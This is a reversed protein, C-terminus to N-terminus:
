KAEAQTGWIENFKNLKGPLAMANNLLKTRPIFVVLDSCDSRSVGAAFRQRRRLLAPGMGGQFRKMGEVGIDFFCPGV